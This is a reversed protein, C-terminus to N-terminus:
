CFVSTDIKQCCQCSHCSTGATLLSLRWRCKGAPSPCSSLWSSPCDCCGLCPPKNFLEWTGWLWISRCATHTDSVTVVQGLASFMVQIGPVGPQTPGRLHHGGQVVQRVSVVQVAQVGQQGSHLPILPQGGTVVLGAAQQLVVPGQVGPDSSQPVPSTNHSYVPQCLAGQWGVAEGVQQHVEQLLLGLRHQM